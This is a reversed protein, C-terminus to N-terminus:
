FSGCYWQQITTICLVLGEIVVRGTFSCPALILLGLKWGLRSTRVSWNHEELCTVLWVRELASRLEKTLSAIEGGRRMLPLLCHGVTQLEHYCMVCRELRDLMSGCSRKVQLYRSLFQLAVLKGYDCLLTTAPRSVTWGEEIMAMYDCNWQIYVLLLM